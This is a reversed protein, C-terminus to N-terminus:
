FYITNNQINTESKIRDFKRNLKFRKSEVALFHKEKICLNYQIRKEWNEKYFIGCYSKTREEWM